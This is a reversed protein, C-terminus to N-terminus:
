SPVSGACRPCCAARQPRAKKIHASPPRKPNQVTPSRARRKQGAAAAPDLKALASRLPDLRPAHPYRDEETIRKIAATIAAREDDTLEITPM